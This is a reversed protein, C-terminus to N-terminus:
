VTQTKDIAPFQGSIFRLFYFVGPLKKNEGKDQGRIWGDGGGKDM